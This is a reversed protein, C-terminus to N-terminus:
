SRHRVAVARAAAYAADCRALVDDWTTPPAVTRNHLAIAARRQPSTVLGTIAAVMEDDGSVLAGEVGDTVFERVGTCAMAVVPVGATRAELAAIGFSEM